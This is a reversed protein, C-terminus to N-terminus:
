RLMHTHQGKLVDAIEDPGFRLGDSTVLWTEGSATVSLRYSGGCRNIQAAALKIGESFGYQELAELARQSCTPNFLCTRKTHQSLFRRYLRITGIALRAAVPEILRPVPRRAAARVAWCCIRAILIM